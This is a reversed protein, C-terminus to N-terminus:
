APTGARWSLDPIAHDRVYSKASMGSSNRQRQRAGAARIGALLRPEIERWKGTARAHRITSAPVGSVAALEQVHRFHHEGVTVERFRAAGIRDLAEQSLSRLHWVLERPDQKLGFVERVDEIRYTEGRITVHSKPPPAFKGKRLGVQELTGRDLANRLAAPSVGVAKAAANISPYDIGRIRIPVPERIGSTM